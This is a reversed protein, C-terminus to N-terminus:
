ANPPGLAHINETEHWSQAEHGWTLSQTLREKGNLASMIVTGMTYVAATNWHWESTVPKLQLYIVWCTYPKHVQIGM